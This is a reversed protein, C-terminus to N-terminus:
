AEAATANEAALLSKARRKKQKIKKPPSEIAEQVFTLTLSAFVYSQILAHFLTFLPTLIAPLVIPVVTFLVGEVLLYIMDM